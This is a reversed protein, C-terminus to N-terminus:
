FFLMSVEIFMHTNLLRSIWYSRVIGIIWVGCSRLAFSARDLLTLFRLTHAEWSKSESWLQIPTNQGMTWGKVKNSSFWYQKQLGESQCVFSCVLKTQIWYCGYYKTICVSFTQLPPWVSAPYPNTELSLSVTWQSLHKGNRALFIQVVTPRWLLKDKLGAFVIETTFSAFKLSLLSQM